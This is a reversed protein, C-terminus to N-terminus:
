NSRIYEDWHEDDCDLTMRFKDGCIDVKFLLDDNWYSSKLKLIGSNMDYEYTAKYEETERDNDVFVYKVTLTGNKKFTITEERDSDHDYVPTWVGVIPNNPDKLQDETDDDKCFSFIVSMLIAIVALGIMRFLKIIM